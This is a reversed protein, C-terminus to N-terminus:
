RSAYLSSFGSYTNKSVDIAIDPFVNSWVAGMGNMLKESVFENNGIAFNSDLFELARVLNGSLRFSSDFVTVSSRVSKVGVGTQAIVVSRVNHLNVVSDKASVADAYVAGEATFGCFDADLSSSKLGFCSVGNPDRCILEAHSFSLAANEAQVLYTQLMDTEDAGYRELTCNKFSFFANRVTLSADKEFQM